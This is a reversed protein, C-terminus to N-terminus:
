PTLANTERAAHSYMTKTTRAVAANTSRTWICELRLECEQTDRTTRCNSNRTQSEVGAGSTDLCVFHDGLEAAV